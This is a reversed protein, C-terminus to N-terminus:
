EDPVTFPHMPPPVFRGRLCERWYRHFTDRTGIDIMGHSWAFDVAAPGQIKPDLWANGLAIGVIGLRILGKM